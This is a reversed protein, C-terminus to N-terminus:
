EPLWEIQLDPIQEFGRDGTVLVGDMRQALAAAICDAYSIRFTGKLAAGDIALSQDVPVAEVEYDEFYALVELARETGFERMTRYYLEGINVTAAVLKIESRAARRFLDDVADATGPEDRFFGILAYADLVYTTDATM